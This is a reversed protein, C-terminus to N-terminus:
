ESIKITEKLNYFIRCSKKSACICTYLDRRELSLTHDYYIDIDDYKDNLSHIASLVYGYYYNYSNPDHNLNTQGDTMYQLYTRSIVIYADEKKGIPSIYDFDVIYKNNNETSNSNINKIKIRYGIPLNIEKGTNKVYATSPGHSVIWENVNPRYPDLYDILGLYKRISINLDKVISVHPTFIPRTIDVESLDFVKTTIPKVMGDKGEFYTIVQELDIKRGRLKNLIAYLPGTKNGKICETKYSYPKYEQMFTIDDPGFYRRPIFTDIFAFLSSNYSIVENLKLLISSDTNDCSELIFLNNDTIKRIFYYHDDTFDLLDYLYFTNFGKKTAIKCADYTVCIVNIEGSTIAKNITSKCVKLFSDLMGSFDYYNPIDILKFKNNSQTM